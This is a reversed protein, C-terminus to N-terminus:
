KMTAPLNARVLAVVVDSEEEEYGRAGESLYLIDMKIIILIERHVFTESAFRLPRKVISHM